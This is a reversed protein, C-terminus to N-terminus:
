RVPPILCSDMFSLASSDGNLARGTHCLGIAWGKSRNSAVRLGPNALGPYALGADTLVGLVDRAVQFLLM